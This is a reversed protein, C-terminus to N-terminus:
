QLKWGQGDNIEKLTDICLTTFLREDGKGAGREILEIVRKKYEESLKLINLKTELDVKEIAYFATNLGRISLREACLHHRILEEIIKKLTEPGKHVGVAGQGYVNKDVELVVNQSIMNQLVELGYKGFESLIWERTVTGTRTYLFISRFVQNDKLQGELECNGNESDHLQESKIFGKILDLETNEPYLSLFHNYFRKITNYQPETNSTLIRKLTKEAIQMKDALLRVGIDHSRYQSLLKLLDEKIREKVLTKIEINNNESIMSAM